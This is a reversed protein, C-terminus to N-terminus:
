LYAWMDRSDEPNHGRATHQTTVSTESSCVVDDEPYDGILSCPAM